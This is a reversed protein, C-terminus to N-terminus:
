HIIYLLVTCHIYSLIDLHELFLLDFDLNEVRGVLIPTMEGQDITALEILNQRSYGAGHTGRPLKDFSGMIRDVEIKRDQGPDVTAEFQRSFTCQNVRFAPVKCISKRDRDYLAVVSSGM